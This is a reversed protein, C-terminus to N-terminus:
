YNLLNFSHNFGSNISVSCFSNRFAVKYKKELLERMEIIKGNLSVLINAFVMDLPSGYGKFNILISLFSLCVGNLLIKLIYKLFLITIHHVGLSINLWQLDLGCPIVKNWKLM